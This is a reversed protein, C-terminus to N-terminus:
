TREPSRNQGARFFRKTFLYCIPILYLLVFWPMAEMGVNLMSLPISCAISWPILGALVVGSNAIDMALELRSAGRRRYSEAMLQEGMVVIVTQNCFFAGIVLSLIATTAFLGLKDSLTESQSKIGDLANIGELIGATFSTLLCICCVSVMSMLGGGALIDQLIGDAPTYGFLASKLAELLPLKQLLVTICLSLAASIALAIKVPVKILPLLLMLAAPVFVVWHLSYQTALANLLTDAAASLPNAISLVAFIVTTLVTPLAATKLMEKVNSYLKTDTCVAVLSACSSMPSCRDGFYAGSIIAGATIALDVGGSRALTILIGGGTGIVGFSTGLMFSLLSTLLFAMLVFLPPSIGQLGYYLFFAITGSARWLATVIGILLLVPVIVLANKGKAWGMRLLDKAAYGRSRGLCFFMVVGLSLPYILSINLLACTLVGALFLVFCFIM